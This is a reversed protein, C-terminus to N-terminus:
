KPVPHAALEAAKDQRLDGDLAETRAPTVERGSALRANEETTSEEMGDAM